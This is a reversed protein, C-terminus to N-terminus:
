SERGEVALEIFHMLKGGKPGKKRRHEKRNNSQQRDQKGKLAHRKIAPCQEPIAGKDLRGQDQNHDKGPGHIVGPRVPEDM